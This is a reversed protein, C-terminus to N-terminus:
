TGEEPEEVSVDPAHGTQDDDQQDHQQHQQHALDAQCFDDYEAISLALQKANAEIRMLLRTRSDGTRADAM